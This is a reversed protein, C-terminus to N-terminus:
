CSGFGPNYEVPDNFLLHEYHRKMSQIIDFPKTNAVIM